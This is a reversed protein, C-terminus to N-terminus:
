IKSDTINLVIGFEIIARSLLCIGRNDLIHLAFGGFYVTGVLRCLTIESSTVVSPHDVSKRTKQAFKILVM